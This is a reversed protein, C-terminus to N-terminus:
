LKQKKKESENVKKPFCSDLTYNVALHAHREVM